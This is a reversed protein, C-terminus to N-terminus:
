LKRGSRRRRGGGFSSIEQASTEDRDGKNHLRSAIRWSRMM